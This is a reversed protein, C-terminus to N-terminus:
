PNNKLKQEYAGYRLISGLERDDIHHIHYAKELASLECLEAISRSYVSPELENNVVSKPIAYYETAINLYNELNRRFVPDLDPHELYETLTSKKAHFISSLNLQLTDCVKLLTSITTSSPKKLMSGIAGDSVPMDNEDCMRSLERNSIGREEMTNFIYTVVNKIVDSNKMLANPM